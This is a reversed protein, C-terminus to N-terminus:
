ATAKVPNLFLKRRVLASLSLLENNSETQLQDSENQSLRVTVSHVKSDQKLTKMNHLKKNKNISNFTCSYYLTHM